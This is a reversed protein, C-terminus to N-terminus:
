AAHRTQSWGCTWLETDGRQRPWTSSPGARVPSTHWAHGCLGSEDSRLNGSPAQQCTEAMGRYFLNGTSDFLHVSKSRDFLFPICKFTWAQQESAPPPRTNPAATPGAARGGGQRESPSLLEDPHGRWVRAPPGPVPPGPVLLGTLLAAAEGALAQNTNIFYCRGIAQRGSRRAGLLPHPGPLLNNLFM